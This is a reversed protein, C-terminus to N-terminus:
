PIEHRRIEEETNARRRTLHASVSIEFENVLYEAARDPWMENEGESPGDSDISVAFADRLKEGPFSSNPPNLRETTPTKYLRTNSDILITNPVQTQKEEVREKGIKIGDTLANRFTLVENVPQGFNVPAGKTPRNDDRPLESKSEDRPHIDLDDVLEAYDIPENTVIFSLAILYKACEERSMGAKSEVHDFLESLSDLSPDNVDELDQEFLYKIDALTNAIGERLALKQNNGSRNGNLWKRDEPTLLGSRRQNGHSPM